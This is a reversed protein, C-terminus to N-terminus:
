CGPLRPVVKGSLDPKSAASAPQYHQFGLEVAAREVVGRRQEDFRQGIVALRALDEESLCGEEWAAHTLTSVAAMTHVGHAAHTHVDVPPASDARLARIRRALLWIVVVGLVIPRLTDLTLLILLLAELM